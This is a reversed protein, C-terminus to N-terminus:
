RKRCGCFPAGFLNIAKKNRLQQEFRQKSTPLLLYIIGTHSGLVNVRIFIYPRVANTKEM